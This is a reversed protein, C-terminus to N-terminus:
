VQVDERVLKKLGLELYRDLHQQRVLYEFTEESPRYSLNQAELKRQVFSELKREDRGFEMLAILEALEDQTLPNILARINVLEPNDNNISINHMMSIKHRRFSLIIEQVTETKIKM